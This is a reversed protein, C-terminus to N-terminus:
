YEYDELDKSSKIQGLSKNLNQKSKEISEILPENPQAQEIQELQDQPSKPTGDPNVKTGPM